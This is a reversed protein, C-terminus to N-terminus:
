TPKSSGSNDIRARAEAADMKSLCDAALMMFTLAADRSPAALARQWYFGALRRWAEAEAEM